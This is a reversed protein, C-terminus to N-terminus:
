APFRIKVRLFEGRFFEKSIIGRAYIGDLDVVSEAGKGGSGHRLGPKGSCTRVETEGKLRGLTDRVDKTEIPVLLAQGGEKTRKLREQICFPHADNEKLQRRIKRRMRFPEGGEECLGCGCLQTQGKFKTVAGPKCFLDVGDEAFMLRGKAHCFAIIQACWIFLGCGEGTIAKAFAAIRSLFQRPYAIQDFHTDCFAVKEGIELVFFCRLANEVRGCQELLQPRCSRCLCM